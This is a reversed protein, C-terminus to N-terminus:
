SDFLKSWADSEFLENLGEGVADAEPRSHSAPSVDEDLAQVLAAFEDNDVWGMAGEDISQGGLKIIAALGGSRWDLSGKRWREEALEELVGFAGPNRGHMAQWDSPATILGAGIMLALIDGAEQSELTRQACRNVAHWCTSGSMVLHALAGFFADPSPLRNALPERRAWGIAWAAHRNKVELWEALLDNPLSWDEPSAVLMLSRFVDTPAQFRAWRCLLYEYNASWLPYYDRPAGGYRALAFHRCQAASLTANIHDDTCDSYLGYTGPLVRQFCPNALLIPGVSAVSQGAARAVEQLDTMRQPGNRKLHEVLMRGISDEEFGGDDRLSRREYPLVSPSLADPPQDGGLPLTLWLSDFLHVFLHQREQLEILIM